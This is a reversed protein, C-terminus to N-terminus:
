VHYLPNSICWLTYLRPCGLTGIGNAMRVPSLAPLGVVEHPPYSSFWSRAVTPSARQTVLYSSAMRRSANAFGRYLTTSAMKTINVFCFSAICRYYYQFSRRHYYPLQIPLPSPRDSEENTQQNTRRRKPLVRM